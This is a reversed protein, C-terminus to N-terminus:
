DLLHGARSTDPSLVLTQPHTSQWDAWTTVVSPFARLATGTFSGTLAEEKLQSWLSETQYDYILVNSQYLRGSVGFTLPAGRPARDYVVASATLPCYTVVIPVGAIQDNVVEHWNLIRVPYAKAVGAETVGIVADGGRLFTAASAAVLRPAMIAPIGDKPPGGSLIQSLPVSHRTTDFGLCALAALLLVAFRGISAAKMDVM